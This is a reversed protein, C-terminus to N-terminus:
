LQLIFEENVKQKQFEKCEILEQKMNLNQILEIEDLKLYLKELDDTKLNV